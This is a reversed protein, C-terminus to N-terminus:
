TTPEPLDLLFVHSEDLGGVLHSPELSDVGTGLEHGRASQGNAELRLRLRHPREQRRGQLGGGLRHAVGPDSLYPIGVAHAREQASGQVHAGAVVVEDAVVAHRHGYGGVRRDDEATLQVTLRLLEGLDHELPLALVDPTRGLAIIDAVHAQAPSHITRAASAAVLGGGEVELIKDASVAAAEVVRGQEHM